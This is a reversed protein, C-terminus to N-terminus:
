HGTTPAVGQSSAGTGTVQNTAGGCGAVQAPAKSAAVSEAMGVSASAAAAPTTASASATAPGVSTAAVQPTTAASVTQEQPPVCRGVAAPLATVISRDTVVSTYKMDPALTQEATTELTQPDLYLIQQEGPRISNDVFMVRIAPRDMPDAARDVTTHPNAAAVLVLAARLAAPVMETRLIDGVAVYVAEDHSSSGSVNARLYQALKSPNAPLAALQAPTPSNVGGYAPFREYWSGQSGVDKVVQSGDAAIWESRVGTSSGAGPGDQRSQIVLYQLQGPRMLDVAGASVQQPVNPNATAVTAPVKSGIVLTGVVLVAVTVAAAAAVLIWRRRAPRLSQRIAQSRRRSVSQAADNEADIRDFVRAHSTADFETAIRSVDPRLAAVHQLLVDNTM